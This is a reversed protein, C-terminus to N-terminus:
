GRNNGATIFEIFGEKINKPRTNCYFNYQNILIDLNYLFAITPFSNVIGSLVLPIYM